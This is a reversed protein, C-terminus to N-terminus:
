QEDEEYLRVCLVCPFLDLHWALCSILPHSNNNSPPKWTNKKNNNNNSSYLTSLFICIRSLNSLDVIHLYLDIKELNIEASHSPWPLFKDNKHRLIGHISNMIIEYLIVWKGFSMVSVASMRDPEWLKLKVVTCLKVQKPQVCFFSQISTYSRIPAIFQRSLVGRKKVKLWVRLSCKNIQIYQRTKTQRKDAAAKYLVHKPMELKLVSWDWNHALNGSSYLWSYMEPWVRQWSTKLKKSDCRERWSPSELKMVTKHRFAFDLDFSLCGFVSAPYGGGGLYDFSPLCKKAKVPM